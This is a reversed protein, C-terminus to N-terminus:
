DWASGLRWVELSELTCSGGQAFLEIGQAAPDHWCAATNANGNLYVEVVSRDVFVHLTVPDGPKLDSAMDAQAAGFTLERTDFWVPVNVNSDTASSRVKIGFRQATGPKFTAIIELADGKVSKLQDGSEPTIDLNKFSQKDARLMRLEPIPEQWVRGDKLTLVRPISHAHEWYPVTRTPTRGITAWGHMIRRPAGGPGKDDVMNPNFSYYNGRKDISRPEARDPTFLMTKTDYTGVWYPNNGVGALLVVRLLARCKVNPKGGSKAEGNSFAEDDKM